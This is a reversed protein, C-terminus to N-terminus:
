QKSDLCAAYCVYSCVCVCVCSPGVHTVPMQRPIKNIRVYNFCAIYTCVTFTNIQKTAHVYTCTTPEFNYSFGLMIQLLPHELRQVDVDTKVWLGVARKVQGEEQGVGELSVM